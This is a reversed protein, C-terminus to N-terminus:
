SQKAEKAKNHEAIKRANEKNGIEVIKLLNAKHQADDGSPAFNQLTNMNGMFSSVQGFIPESGPKRDEIERLNKVTNLDVGGFSDFSRILQPAVMPDLALTPSHRAVVDFYDRANPIARIDANNAMVSGFAKNLERDRMMRGVIGGLGRLTVAGATVAGTALAYPVAASLHKGVSQMITPNSAKEALLEAAEKGANILSSSLSAQKELHPDNTVLDGGKQSIESVRRKATQAYDMAMMTKGPSGVGVKLAKGTVKAGGTLAAGALASTLGAKKELHSILKDQKDLEDLYPQLSSGGEESAIKEVSVSEFGPNSRVLSARLEALKSLARGKRARCCDIAERIQPLTYGVESATKTLGYEMRQINVSAQKEINGKDHLHKVVTEYQAVDFVQEGTSALKMIYCEKNAEEVLRKVHEISANHESAYKAISENMDCNHKLYQDAIKHAITNIDM